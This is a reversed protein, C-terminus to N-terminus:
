LGAGLTLAVGSGPRARGAVRLRGELAAGITRRAVPVTIALRPGVDLRAARPQAAGWLGAGATATATGLRWRRGARLAGDVFLDREALGVLGAQAYGDLALRGRWPEAYFGGAGYVSWADRGQRDLGFRREVSLRLPVDAFPHWDFGLAAEAGRRELPSYLRAALATRVAPGPNLRYTIRAAAQSGGLEGGAALSSGGSGPRVFLYADAAWRSPRPPAPAPEATPPRVDAPIGAVVDPPPVPSPADAAEDEVAPAHAVFARIPMPAARRVPPADRVAMRAHGAAARVPPPARPSAAPSGAEALMALPGAPMSAPWFLVAGRAGSWLGITALLFRAQGGRVRM